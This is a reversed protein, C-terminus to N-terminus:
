KCSMHVPTTLVSSSHNVMLETSRKKMPPSLSDFDDEDNSDDFIRYMEAESATQTSISHDFDACTDLWTEVNHGDANLDTKLSKLQRQLEHNRSTLM